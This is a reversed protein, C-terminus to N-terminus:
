DYDEGDDFASGRTYRTMATIADRYMRETEEGAKIAEVKASALAIDAKLKEMELQERIAGLKLYHTIIQSSATGERMQKEALDMALAILESERAEQTRAPARKATDLM